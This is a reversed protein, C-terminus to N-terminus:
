EAAPVTATGFDRTNVNGAVDSARVRYQHERTPDATRDYTLYRRDNDQRPDSADVPATVRAVPRWTREGHAKREVTAWLLPENALWQVAVAPPLAQSTKDDYPVEADRPTLRVWEAREWEPPPPPTTDAVSATVPRTPESQNGDTDYAAVRYAYQRLGPLPTDTFRELSAGGTPSLDAHPVMRRVDALDAATDARWIRYGALDAEGNAVWSLITANESGRASTLTPTKPPTVDRVEVLPFAASWDGANGSADVSRVRYVFRGRGRGDLTDEFPPAAITGEHTPQFAEENGAREALAMVDKNLFQPYYWASWDRWAQQITEAAPHTTLDATLDSVSLTPHQEALWAESGDGDDFPGSGYPGTGSQRQLRDRTFLAATSARLVRYGAAGPIGDFALTYRARGYWDAPEARDAPIDGDQLPPRPPQVAPPPTRRPVRIRAGRSLPGELGPRAGLGGRGPRSWVTDDAVRPDGDATSVAVLALALSEREAPVLPPGPLWARYTGGVWVTCPSEAAPHALTGDAQPVAATEVEPSRATQRIVPFAIGGQVLRGPVSGDSLRLRDALTVTAQTGEAVVAAVRTTQRALPGVDAVQVRRDFSRADSLDTRAPSSESVRITCAGPRPKRTPAELHRVDFWTSEGTGHGSIEFSARGVRVREGALADPAGPWTVDTALRSRTGRDTVSLVSGHLENPDNRRVYVRFEGDPEVGPAAIRRDASWTWSVLLGPGDAEVLSRDEDSLLPDAPDLYQATVQDPPPPRRRARVQVDREASWDGIRGFADIGRVRLTYWGDALGSDTWRRPVDPGPRPGPVRPSTAFAVAPRDASRVEFEGPGSPTDDDGRFAGAVLVRVPRSVDQAEGSDAWDLGVVGADAEVTGNPLLRPPGADSGVDTLALDRVPAPSRPSVNWAYAVLDGVLGAKQLLEVELLDVPGGTWTIADIGSADELTATGFIPLAVSVQHPGRWATLPMGTGQALRLTVAPVSTGFRMGAVTGTRPAEVRLAPLPQVRDGVVIRLGGNGSFAVGLHDLTRTDIAGPLLDEFTITRGPYRVQDHHAVVKYDWHGDEVPDHWYLGLMRAVNPDLSALAIMTGVTFGLSPPTRASTSSTATAPVLADRGDRLLTEILERVDGAFERALRRRSEPALTASLRSRAEDRTATADHILAPDNSTGRPVVPLLLPEENLLDWGGQPIALGFCLTCLRLDDGTLRITTLGDAWLNVTWSDNDGADATGSFVIVPEGGSSSLVQVGPPAGMGTARVVIAPRPSVVQLTRHGALYLADLKGCGNPDIQVPGPTVRFRFELWTWELAGPPPLLSRDIDLCMWEVEGRTRRYVHYGQAPFGLDPHLSWLLHVGRALRDGDACPQGGNTGLVVLAHWQATSM